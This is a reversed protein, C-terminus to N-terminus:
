AFADLVGGMLSITLCWYVVNLLINTGTNRQFLLNSVLVPVVIILALQLGHFAGHGFTHTTTFIRECADNVGKHVHEIIFAVYYSLVFSLLLSIIYVIPMKIPEPLNDQSYGLSAVWRKGFLPGYFIAGILMPILAAGAVVLLNLDPTM